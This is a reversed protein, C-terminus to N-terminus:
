KEVHLERASVTSGGKATSYALRASSSWRVLWL